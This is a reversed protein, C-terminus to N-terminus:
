LGPCVTSKRNINEKDVTIEREKSSQKMNQQTHTHTHTHTKLDRSFLGEFKRLFPDSNTRM